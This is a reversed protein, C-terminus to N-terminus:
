EHDEGADHRLKRRQKNIWTEEPYEQLIGDAFAVIDDGIVSEVPQGELAAEEFMELVQYIVHTMGDGAAWSYLYTQLANMKQQFDPPLKAVRARYARWEQKDGILKKMWNNM